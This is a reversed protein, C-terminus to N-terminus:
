CFHTGPTNGPPLLARHMPSVIKSGERAAQRSIQSGWRGPVRQAQGPRYHSQKVQVKKGKCATQSSYLETKFYNQNGGEVDKRISDGNDNSYKNMYREASHFQLHLLVLIFCHDILASFLLTSLSLFWNCNDLVLLQWGDHPFWHGAGAWNLHDTIYQIIV